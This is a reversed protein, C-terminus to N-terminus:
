KNGLKSVIAPDVTTVSVDGGILEPPEVAIMDLNLKALQKAEEVSAACACVMFGDPLMDLLESIKEHSIKHEAHNIITGVAGREIATKPHLWGTNSGFGIPDLHQTWVQINPAVGCVSELDFPSVVAVFESNMGSVEQMNKALEEAAIGQASEYTKFNVVILPKDMCM